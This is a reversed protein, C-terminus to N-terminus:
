HKYVSNIHPIIIYVEDVWYSCATDIVKNDCVYYNYLHCLYM